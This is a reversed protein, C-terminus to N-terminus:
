IKDMEAVLEKRLSEFWDLNFKVEDAGHKLTLMVFKNINHTLKLFDTEEVSDMLEDYYDKDQKYLDLRAQELSSHATVKAIETQVMEEIASMYKYAEKYDAITREINALQQAETLYGMLLLRGTEMNKVKLLELPNNLWTMFRERGAPTIGFVKKIVKGEHVEELSVFGKELLKKLARQINGVSNSCIGEYNNKIETHLGYATLRRIMLLGLIFDEM